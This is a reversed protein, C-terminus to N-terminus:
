AINEICILHITTSIEVINTSYICYSGAVALWLYPLYQVTILNLQDKYAKDHVGVLWISVIYLLYLLYLNNDDVQALM